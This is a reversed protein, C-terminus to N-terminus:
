ESEPKNRQHFKDYKDKKFHDRSRQKLVKQKENPSLAAVKGIGGHANMGMRKMPKECVLCCVDIGDSEEATLPIVVNQWGEKCDSDKCCYNYNHVKSM